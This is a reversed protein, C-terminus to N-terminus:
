ALAEVLQSLRQAQTQVTYLREVRRRGNLGLRRRQWNPLQQLKSIASAIGSSDEVAVSYGCSKQVIEALGMLDSAIVPLGLAMAEKCVLPGTDRDGNAAIRYPAVLALYRPGCRQLWRQDRSGLFYVDLQLQQAQQQLAKLLPGDGVVDLGPRQLPPLQALAQLLLDVGKKEVLRGVFLLRQNHGGQGLAFQKADIGCPVLAANCSPQAQFQQVMKRCVGIALDVSRLKLELDYPAQYIDAGHGVFSVSVGCFKAAVIAVAASHQAFHAHIHNCRQQKVVRALKMAALWLSRRSWSKQANIFRWGARRQPLSIATLLASFRSIESLLQVQPLWQQQLPQMTAVSCREFTCPVVKHGLQSMAEMENVIFTESLVPFAPIVYAITKM